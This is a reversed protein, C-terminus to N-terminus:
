KQEIKRLYEALFIDPQAEIPLLDVDGSIVEAANIHEEMVDVVVLKINAKAIRERTWQM